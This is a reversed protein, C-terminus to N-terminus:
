GHGGGRRLAPLELEIGRVLALVKFKHGMEDPMTLTKVQQSIALQEHMDADRSQKEALELLGNALLFHRQSVLGLPDFGHKEAADACADFDVDATIDQLGPLILPDFHLRHQYYCDLTGRVRDPHYYQAQEHGYDVIIVAVRGCSQALAAFWPELNLNIECQYGRPLEGHHQEIAEIAALAQQRPKFNHWVFREGDFGVGREQWTENKELLHVPLADFMENAIVVGDFDSPLATLWEIKAFQEPELLNRLYFEQRQKLEASLDLILYRELLPRRHPCM